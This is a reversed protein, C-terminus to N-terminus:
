WKWIESPPLEQLRYITAEYKRREERRYLYSVTDYIRNIYTSLLISAIDAPEVACKVALADTISTISSKHLLCSLGPEKMPGQKCSSPWFIKNNIHTVLTRVKYIVSTSKQCVHSKAPIRSKEFNGAEAM